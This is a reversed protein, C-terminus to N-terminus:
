SRRDTHRARERALEAELAAVQAELEFVRRVGALTLGEEVLVCVQVVRDIQQRSYRRQRGESRAPCIRHDAVRRCAAFLRV